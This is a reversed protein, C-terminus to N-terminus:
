QASNKWIGSRQSAFELKRDDMLEIEVCVKGNLPTWCLKRNGKYLEHSKRYKEFQEKIPEPLEM